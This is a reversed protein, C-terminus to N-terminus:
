KIWQISDYYIMADLLNMKPLLFLCPAKYKDCGNQKSQELYYPIDKPVLIPRLYIGYNHYFFIEGIKTFYLGGGSCYGKPNFPHIDFNFGDKYCFSKHIEDNNTIKFFLDFEQKSENQFYNQSNEFTKTKYQEISQKYQEIEKDSISLTYFEDMFPQILPNLQKTPLKKDNILSQFCEQYFSLLDQKMDKNQEEFLTLYNM